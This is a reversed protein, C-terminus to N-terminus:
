LFDGGVINRSSHLIREIRVHDPQTSYFIMYRRFAVSRIHEAIDPRLPYANPADCVSYCREKIEQIFTVARGPNDVAIFDGISELDIKANQSFKLFV